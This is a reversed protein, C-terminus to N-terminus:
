SQERTLYDVVTAGLEIELPCRDTRDWRSDRRHNDTATRGCRQPAGPTEAIAPEAHPYRGFPERRANRRHLCFGRVAPALVDFPIVTQQGPGAKRRTASVRLVAQRPRHFGEVGHREM